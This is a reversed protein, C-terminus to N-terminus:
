TGSWWCGLRHKNSETLSWWIHVSSIFTSKAQFTCLGAVHITFWMSSPHTSLYCILKLTHSPPCTVRHMHASTHKNVLRRCFNWLGLKWENVAKVIHSNYVITGSETTPTKLILQLMCLCIALLFQAKIVYDHVGFHLITYWLWLMHISRLAVNGKTKLSSRMHTTMLSQPWLHICQKVSNSIKNVMHRLIDLWIM